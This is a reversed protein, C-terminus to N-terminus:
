PLAYSGETMRHAGRTMCLSAICRYAPYCAETTLTPHKLLQLRKAESQTVVFSQTVPGGTMCLSAAQGSRLTPICRYAPYCAVTTLTPHKLRKLRKAESQTVFPWLGCKYLIIHIVQM